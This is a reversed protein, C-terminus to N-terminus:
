SREYSSGKRQITNRVKVVKLKPEPNGNRRLKRNLKREGLTPADKIIKAVEDNM